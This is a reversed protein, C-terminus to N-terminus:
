LREVVLFAFEEGRAEVRVQVRDGLAAEGPAVGRLEGVIRPGEDLEVVATIYPVEDIWARDITFHNIAMSYLTGTGAVSVFEYRDSHCAPCYWRPPHRHEGCETCRQITVLGSAVAALHLELNLGEPTPVYKKYRKPEQEGTQEVTSM